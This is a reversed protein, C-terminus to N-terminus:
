NLGDKCNVDKNNSGCMRAEVTNRDYIGMQEDYYSGTGCVPKYKM